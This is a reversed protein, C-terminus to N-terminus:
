GVHQSRHIYFGAIAINRLADHIDLPMRILCTLWILFFSFQPVRVCVENCKISPM